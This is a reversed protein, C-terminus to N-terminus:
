SFNVFPGPGLSVDRAEEATVDSADSQSRTILGLKGPFRIRMWMEKRDGGLAGSKINTKLEKLFDNYLGPLELGIMQERMVGINEAARDYNSNGMSETILTQVIKGMDKVAQVIGEDEDASALSQLVQKFEPVANEKSIKTKKAKVGEALM